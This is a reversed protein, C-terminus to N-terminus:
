NKWNVNPLCFIEDNEAVNLDSTHIVDAFDLMAIELMPADYIMKKM